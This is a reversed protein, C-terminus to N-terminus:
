KHFSCPTKFMAMMTMEARRASPAATLVALGCTPAVAVAAAAATAVGAGVGVGAGAGISMM